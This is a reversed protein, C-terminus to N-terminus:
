RERDTAKGPDSGTIGKLKATLQVTNHIRRLTNLSFVHMTKPIHCSATPLNIISGAERMCSPWTVFQLSLSLWSLARPLERPRFLNIWRVPSVFLAYLQNDQFYFCTKHSPAFLVPSTNGQESPLVGSIGKRGGPPRPFATPLLWGSVAPSPAAAPGPLGLAHLRRGVTQGPQRKLM